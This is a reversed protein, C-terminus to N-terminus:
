GLSTYRARTHTHTYRMRTNKIHCSLPATVTNRNKGMTPTRKPHTIAPLAFDGSSVVDRCERCKRAGAPNVQTGAEHSGWGNFQVLLRVLLLKNIMGHIDQGM